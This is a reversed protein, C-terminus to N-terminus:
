YLLYKQINRTSIKTLVTSDRYLSSEIYCFLTDSYPFNTLYIKKMFSLVSSPRINFFSIHRYVWSQVYFTSFDIIVWIEDSKEMNKFLIEM